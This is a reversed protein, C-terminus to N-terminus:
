TSRTTMSIRARRSRHLGPVSATPIRMNCMAEKRCGPITNSFPMATSLSREPFIHFEFVPRIAVARCLGDAKFTDGNAWSKSYYTSLTGLKIKGGDTPDIYGFRDLQGTDM